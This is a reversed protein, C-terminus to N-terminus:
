PEHWMRRRFERYRRLDKVGGRQCLEFEIAGAASTSIVEAGTAQWRRVIDPKPFGWRNRYGSSVIATQASLREVFPLSSSTRSGHHPVTVVDVEGALGARVLEDEAAKEIDGALLM